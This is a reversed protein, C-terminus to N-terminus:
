GGWIRLFGGLPVKKSFNLVTSFQYKQRKLHPLTVVQCSTCATLAPRLPLGYPCATLAPRLPRNGFTCQLIKSYEPLNRALIGLPNPNISIAVDM